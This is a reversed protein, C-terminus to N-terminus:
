SRWLLRREADLLAQFGLWAEGVDDMLSTARIRKTSAPLHVILAPHLNPVEMQIACIHPVVEGLFDEDDFCLRDSRFTQLHYRPFLQTLSTM